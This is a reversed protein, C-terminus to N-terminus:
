RGGGGGCRINGGGYSGKAKAEERNRLVEPVRSTEGQWM